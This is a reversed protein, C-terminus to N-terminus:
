PALAASVVVQNRGAHKAQYLARDAKEMLAQGDPIQQSGGAVGISVTLRIEAQREGTGAVVLVSEAVTQRLREALLAADELGTNPLIVLMEEGGYRAVIDAERVFDLMLHGLQQLVLDGAQHGHTDNIKKFFDVDLLLVALPLAYRQARAVEEKLRRDLYRRNFIGMLPDTITEQELACIRKIDLATRLALSCVMKVFVAGVFFIAPVVLDLATCGGGWNAVAYGIYGAIFFLMLLTLIQWRIRVSGAPLTLILRGVPFLAAVLLLGGAMLVLNAIFCIRDQM